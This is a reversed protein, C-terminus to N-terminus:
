NLGSGSLKECHLADGYLAALQKAMSPTQDTIIDIDPDTHLSGYIGMIGAGNLKDYERVFNATMCDERYAFADPESSLYKLYFRKGQKIIQRALAYADGDQRGESELLSLYRAGMTDYMHGVDTGHFVTEPFEVKIRRYFNMVDPSHSQTGRSDRFIQDLIEDTDSKIWRNLYEALYCPAEIFLDRMGCEYHGRWLELEKELCDTDAHTEGYLFIMGDEVAPAQKPAVSESCFITLLTALLLFPLLVRRERM